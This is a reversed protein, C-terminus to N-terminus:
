SRSQQRRRNWMLTLAGTMLLAMGGLGWGASTDLGTRALEPQSTQVPAPSSAVPEPTPTPTPQAEVVLEPTPTESEQEVEAVEEADETEEKEPTPEPTEEPEDSEEPEDEAPEWSLGLEARASMEFSETGVLIISQSRQGQESEPQVIGGSVSTLTVVDTKFELVDTFEEDLSEEDFKVTFQEGDHALFQPEVTNGEADIVHFSAENVTTASINIEEIGDLEVQLTGVTNDTPDAITDPTHTTLNVSAISADVFQLGTNHEGLLYEYLNNIRQQEAEPRKKGTTTDIAETLNKGNSINWIAAQTATIAEATTLEKIGTQTRLQAIGVEPYSNAVVWNLRNQQAPNGQLRDSGSTGFDQYTDWGKVIGTAPVRALVDYEICYASLQETGADIKFLHTPVTTQSGAVRVSYGRLGQDRAYAPDHSSIKVTEASGFQQTVGETPTAAAPHAAFLGLSGLLATIGTFVSIKNLTTISNKPTKFVPTCDRM